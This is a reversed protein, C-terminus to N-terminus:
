NWGNDKKSSSTKFAVFENVNVKTYSSTLTAETVERTFAYESGDQPYEKSYGWTLLLPKAPNKSKSIVFLSHSGNNRKRNAIAFSGIYRDITATM